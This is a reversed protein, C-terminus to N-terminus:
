LLWTLCTAILLVPILWLLVSILAWITYSQKNIKTKQRQLKTKLEDVSLSFMAQKSLRCTLANNMSLGKQFAQFTSKPYFIVGIGMAWLTLLWPFYANGWGGSAIEWGAIASEGKWNAEYGSIIHNIDHLYINQSRSELNPLPISIFGFKFWVWEKSVGGDDGFNNRNYFENIADAVIM